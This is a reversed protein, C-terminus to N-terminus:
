LVILNSRSGVNLEGFKTFGNEIRLKDGVNINEVQDRWLNLKISGTEDELTAQTYLAPGFRTEMTTPSSKAAVTGEVCVGDM